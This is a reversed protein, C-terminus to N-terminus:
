RKAIRPRALVREWRQLAIAAHIDEALHGQHPAVESQALRPLTALIPLGTMKQLWQRNTTATVDGGAPETPYENMVIGAIPVDAQRLLTATMATHNLTGLTSRTVIVAPYGLAQMLTLVTCDADDPDLPVMVGGVGEILLADHHQQLQHLSDRLLSWDISQGTQEAAVAPALAPKFRLPNIVHLPKRCDAFHALAEADANVLGERERRCGTALPKCVGLKLNPSQRRLAQAIASAVVTKGADTDTATIFLGPCQLNLGDLM